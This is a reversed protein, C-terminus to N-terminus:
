DVRWIRWAQEDHTWLVAFRWTLKHRRCFQYAASRANDRATKTKVLFSDGVEMSAFPYVSRITKLKEPLPLGKDVLITHM